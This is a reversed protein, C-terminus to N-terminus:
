LRIEERLNDRLEKEMGDLLLMAAGSMERQMEKGLSELHASTEPAVEPAPRGEAAAALGQRLMGFLLGINKESFMKSALREMAAETADFSDARAPLSLTLLSLSIAFLARRM